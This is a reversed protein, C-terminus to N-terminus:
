QLRFGITALRGTISIFLRDEKVRVCTADTTIFEMPCQIRLTHWKNRVKGTVQRGHIIVLILFRCWIRSASSVKKVWLLM